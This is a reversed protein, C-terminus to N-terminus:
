LSRRGGRDNAGSSPEAREDSSTPLIWPDDDMEAIGMLFLKRGGWVPEIDRIFTAFREHLLRGRSDYLRIYGDIMDSGQGPMATRFSNLSLNHYKQIYYQGNPSYYRDQYPSGSHWLHFSVAVAAVVLLLLLIVIHRRKM